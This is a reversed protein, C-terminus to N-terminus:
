INLFDFMSITPSIPSINIQESLWAFTVIRLRRDLDKASDTHM